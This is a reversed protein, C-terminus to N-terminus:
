EEDELENFHVQSWQKILFRIYNKILDEKNSELVNPAEPNEEVCSVALDLRAFNKEDELCLEIVDNLIDMMWMFNNSSLKDFCDKLNDLFYELEQPKMIGIEVYNAIFNESYKSSQLKNMVYKTRSREIFILEDEDFEKKYFVYGPLEFFDELQKLRQDTIKLKGKEWLNITNSSVGIKEGLEKMTLGFSKRIYTLGNM